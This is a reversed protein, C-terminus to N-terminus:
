GGVCCRSLSADSCRTYWQDDFLLDHHLYKVILTYEISRVKDVKVLLLNHSWALWGSTAAINANM